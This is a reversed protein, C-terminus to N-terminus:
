FVSKLPEGCSTSIGGVKFCVFNTKDIDVYLGIGRAEQELSYLLSETQAFTDKLLVLDDAYGTDMM